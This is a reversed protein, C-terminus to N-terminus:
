NQTNIAHISKDFSIIPRKLLNAMKILSLLIKGLKWWIILFRIQYFINLVIMSFVSVLKRIEM